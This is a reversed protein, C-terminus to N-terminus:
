GAQRLAVVDLESLAESGPRVEHHLDDWSPIYVDRNPIGVTGVVERTAITRCRSPM